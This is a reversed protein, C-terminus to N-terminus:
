WPIPTAAGTIAWGRDGAGARIEDIRAETAPHTSLYATFWADGRDEALLREFFQLSGGVHGYEAQLIGLAFVDADSEQARSFRRLTLDSATLGVSGAGNDMLVSFMIGFVVGRGLMRLHDRNRYHGLEHALVFALENESEVRDLLATTVVVLGGPFAMANPMEEDMVDIRYTYPSDPWRAALRQTLAQIGPLRVDDTEIPVLDDPTWASFFAAEAEVSVFRLALEVLFVLALAITVFILGLGVILTGAEALPHTESVNINDRPQRAVYKM